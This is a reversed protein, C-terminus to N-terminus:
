VKLESRFAEVPKMKMSKFAPYLVALLAVMIGFLISGILNELTLDTYLIRGFMPIPMDLKNWIEEGMMKTIDIGTKEVIAALTGGMIGGLLSGITGIYFAEAMILSFIESNKFGMAKIVGIEHYREMVTMLMTNLIVLAVILFIIGLIKDYVTDIMPIFSKIFENQQWPVVKLPQNPAEKALYSSIQAATEIALEPNKVYVLVEHAGFGCDMMERAKTLPIYLQHKDAGSDGTESLGVIKFPLAYTSYNIDTTVLLLEDDVGVKLKEALQKGIVLSLSDDKLYSGEIVSKKIGMIDGAPQPEIGIVLAAENIDEHNLLVNFRIREVLTEVGPINEMGTKLRDLETVMHEKPMIRELRLFEENAIKIHGIQTKIIAETSSTMVGAIYSKAFVVSMIGFAIAVLTFLTRRKNRWINKWAFGFINTTM